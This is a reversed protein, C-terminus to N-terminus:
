VYVHIVPLAHLVTKHLEFSRQIVIFNPLYAPSPNPTRCKFEIMTLIVSMSLQGEGEGVGM